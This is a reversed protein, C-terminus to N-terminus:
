GFYKIILDALATWRGSFILAIALLGTPSAAKQGLSKVFEETFNDAKLAAWKATRLAYETVRKRNLQLTDIDPTPNLTQTKIVELTAAAETLDAPGLAFEIPPENHGITGHAQAAPIANILDRLAEEAAQVASLIDAVGNEEYNQIPIKHEQHRVLTGRKLRYNSFIPLDIQPRLIQAGDFITAMNSIAGNLRNDTIMNANSFDAGSFDAGEFFVPTSFLAIFDLKM